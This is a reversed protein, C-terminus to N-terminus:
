TRSRRMGAIVLVVGGAILAGGLIPSLPIRKKQEATAQIPGVDIIKERDTYWIGQFALALAGLIILVVGALVFGKM